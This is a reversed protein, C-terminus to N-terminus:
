SCASTITRAAELMSLTDATFLPLPISSSALNLQPPTTKGATVLVCYRMGSAATVAPRLALTVDDILLVQLTLLVGTSLWPRM